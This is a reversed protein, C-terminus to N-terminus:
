IVGEVKSSVEHIIEKAAYNNLNLSKLAVYTGSRKWNAKHVKGVIGRGIEEIKNFGEYDYYKIHKVKIYEEIWEMLQTGFEDNSAESVVM